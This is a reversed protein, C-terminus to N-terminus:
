LNRPQIVTTISSTIVQGRLNNRQVVLRMKIQKSNLGKQFVILTTGTLPDKVPVNNLIPFTRDSCMISGNSVYIRRSSAELASSSTTFTGDTNKPPLYYTIGLGNSDLTWSRAENLMGRIREVALAVDSDAQAQTQIRDSMRVSDISLEACVLLLISMLGMAVLLEILTVGSKDTIRKMM